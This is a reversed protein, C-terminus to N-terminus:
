EVGVAVKKTRKGAPKAPEEAAPPDYSADVVDDDPPASAELAPLAGFAAEAEKRADSMREPKNDLELAQQFNDQKEEEPKCEVSLVCEQGNCRLLQMVQEESLEKTKIRFDFEVTGGDIPLFHFKDLHCDSINLDDGGIEDHLTAIVRPVEMDYPLAKNIKPFRTKRKFEDLERQKEDTYFAGLLEPHLKPLISHNAFRGKVKIDYGNVNEDGHKEIRLNVYVDMKEKVLQFAEITM